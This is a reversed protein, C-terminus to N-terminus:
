AELNYLKVMAKAKAQKEEFTLPKPKEIVPKPKPGPKIKKPKVVHKVVPVPKHRLRSVMQLKKLVEQKM